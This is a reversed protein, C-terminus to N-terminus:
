ATARQRLEKEVYRILKAIYPPIPRAGTEWYSVASENVELQEAMEAQKLGLEKRLRKFQNATM